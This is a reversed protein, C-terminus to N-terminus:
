KKTKLSFSAYFTRVERGVKLMAGGEREVRRWSDM